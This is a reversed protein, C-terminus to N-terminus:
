SSAERSFLRSVEELLIGDYETCKLLWYARYDRSAEEVVPSHSVLSELLRSLVQPLTTPVMTSIAELRFLGNIAFYEFIAALALDQQEPFLSDYLRHLLTIKPELASRLHDTTSQAVEQQLSRLVLKLNNKWGNRSSGAQVLTNLWEPKQLEEPRSSAYFWPFDLSRPLPFSNKHNLAFIVGM